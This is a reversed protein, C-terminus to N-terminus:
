RTTWNEHAPRAELMSWVKQVPISAVRAECDNVGYALLLTPGGSHNATGPAAEHALGSIFQVSECEAADQPSALCFEPSAGVIAFPPKADLAYWFHTYRFGFAFPQRRKLLQPVRQALRRMRRGGMVQQFGWGDWHPDAGSRRARRRRVVGSNDMPASDWPPQGNPRRRYLRRNAEGEGRHLHGVGLYIDCLYATGGVRCPRSLRILNSTISLGGFTGSPRLWGSLESSANAMLRAKHPVVGVLSPQPVLSGDPWTGCEASRRHEGHCNSVFPPAPARRATHWIRSSTCKTVRHRDYRLGHGLEGVVGLRPQVLLKARRRPKSEAATSAAAAGSGAHDANTSGGTASARSHYHLFLAQNRGALWPAHQYTFRDSAWVRLSRLGGDETPTATVRLTSVSFVCSVCAYTVLLEGDFNLLRADFTQKAWPPPMFGDVGSSGVGIGVCSTSNLTASSTGAPAIQYMPANLMWTWGLLQLQSDLIAIATAQFWDVSNLLAPGATYPSTDSSCQHLQDVRLSVAWACRPCLNAPARAISPNYARAPRPAKSRLGPLGPPAGINGLGPLSLTAPTSSSQIVQPRKGLIFGHSDRAFAIRTGYMRSSEYWPLAHEM